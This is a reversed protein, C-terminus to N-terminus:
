QQPGGLTPEAAMLDEFADCSDFIMLKSADPTDRGEGEWIWWSAFALDYLHEPRVFAFSDPDTLGEIFSGSVVLELRHCEYDQLGATDIFLDLDRVPSGAVSPVPLPHFRPSREDRTRIRWHAELPQELNEDRVQVGLTWQPMAFKDIWVISGIEPEGVKSLVIPPLNPEEDFTIADTVLCGGCSLWVIATVVNGLLSSALRAGSGNLGRFRRFVRQNEDASSARRPTQRSM